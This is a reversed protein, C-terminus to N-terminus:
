VVSKRDETIIYPYKVSNVTIDNIDYNYTFVVDPLNNYIYVKSAPTQYNDIVINIPMYCDYGFYWLWYAGSHEKTNDVKESWANNSSAYGANYILSKDYAQTTQQGGRNTNYEYLALHTCDKLIVDGRFTSGYDNRSAIYTSGTMKTVNDALLYGGGVVHFTHGIVTDILEANWFGRHADFRNIECNTFFMNKAGNSSMIGWYRSDALGTECPQIVNDLYVHSSYEVILDYTGMAVPNPIEGGTSATAPKDEYYTTHGTLECDIAHFNYTNYINLFGYYPYSEHRSGYQAHLDDEKYDSAEYDGITPEDVMIHKVNKITANTRNIRFGRMYAHYKCDFNTKAITKCCINEFNGNEVTIEKDDARFIEIKTINDFAYAVPTSKDVTGDVDVVFVDNRANGSSQNSGHRIFDKHQSNTISVLSKAELVGVLWEFKFDDNYTYDYKNTEPNWKREVIESFPITVDHFREDDTKGTKEYLPTGDPKLGTIVSGEDFVVAENDRALTFFATGRNAYAEEGEDDIIFTAGNFDCDTKIPITRTFNSPKIYYKAGKAAMVKQGCKNAYAHTDYIAKFDCTAGDGVAGFDEYYVVSVLDEYKYDEKFVIDNQQNYFVKYAFDYYADNFSNAYSCEVIFNGESVYARFGKEGADEVYRVIFAHEYSALNEKTGNELYYGSLEYLKNRFASINSASYGKMASTDVVFTFESLDVDKVTISTILYKQRQEFFYDAAVVLDSIIRTRSTIKMENKVYRDFLEKTLAETGGAIIISKGVIKIARGEEGLYKDGIICEEPRNKVNTGIIIECESVASADADSVADGIEVNFSRLKEVFTEASRKGSIGSDSTYVITFNAVGEKVLVLGEPAEEENNNQEGGTLGPIDFPLNSLVDCSALTFLLSLTIVMFFIKVLNKKM